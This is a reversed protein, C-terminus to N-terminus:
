MTEGEDDSEEDEFDSFRAPSRMSAVDEEAQVGDSDILEKLRSKSCLPLIPLGLAALVSFTLVLDLAIALGECAFTWVLLRLM